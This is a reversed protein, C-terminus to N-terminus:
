SLTWTWTGYFAFFKKVLWSVELKELIATPRQLCVSLVSTEEPKKKDPVKTGAQHRQLAHQAQLAEGIKILTQLRWDLNM